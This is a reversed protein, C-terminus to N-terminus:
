RPPGPDWRRQRLAEYLAICAANALNLSRIHSNTPIRVHRDPFRELVARPLGATEGGFVLASDETFEVDWLAREASKTFLWLPSHPLAEVLADLDAHRHLRVNPWYDLGARKLYRDELSFGLTGVLHLPTDTGACARSISGTNGPIEPEILVIHV